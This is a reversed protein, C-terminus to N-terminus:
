SNDKARTALSARLTKTFRDSGRKAVFRFEWLGGRHMPLIACAVQKDQKLTTRHRKMARANHFAVVDIQADTLAKGAKDQLRVCLPSKQRKSATPTAVFALSWGLRKNLRDQAMKKDWEVAKQYYNEEIAFSPDNIAIILMSINAAVGGALFLFIIWPWYKGDKM